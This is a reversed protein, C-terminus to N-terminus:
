WECTQLIRRCSEKRSAAPLDETSNAEIKTTILPFVACDIPKFTGEDTRKRAPRTMSYVFWVFSVAAKRTHPTWISQTLTFSKSAHRCEGDRHPRGVAKFLVPQGILTPKPRCPRVATPGVASARSRGSPSARTPARREPLPRNKWCALARTSGYGQRNGWGTVRLLRGRRTAKAARIALAGTRHLHSGRRSPVVQEPPHGSTRMARAAGPQKLRRGNASGLKPDDVATSSGRADEILRM